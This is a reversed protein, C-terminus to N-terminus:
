SFILEFYLLSLYKMFIITFCSKLDSVNSKILFYLIQAAIIAFSVSTALNASMLIAASAGSMM